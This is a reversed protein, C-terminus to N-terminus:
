PILAIVHGAGCHFARAVLVGLIFIHTMGCLCGAETMCSAASRILIKAAWCRCPDNKLFRHDDLPRRGDGSNGQKCSYKCPPNENFPLFASYTIAIQCNELKSALIKLNWDKGHNKVIRSWCTEGQSTQFEHCAGNEHHKKQLTGNTCTVRLYGSLRKECM